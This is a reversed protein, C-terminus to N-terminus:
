EFLESIQLVDTLSRVSVPQVSYESQRLRHDMYVVNNEIIETGGTIWLPRMGVGSSGLVDADYRDGVYVCKAPDIDMKTLAAHFIKADPKMSQEVASDIMVEFFGDYNVQECWGAVNGWNNSICGLRYYHQLKVLIEYNRRLTEHSHVLFMEAIELPQWLATFDNVVPERSCQLFSYTSEMWRIVTQDMNLNMIDPMGNMSVAADKMAGFFVPKDFHRGGTKETVYDYFRTFWDIGDYDLTGGFDFLIAEVKRTM